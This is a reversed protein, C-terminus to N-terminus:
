MQVHQAGITVTEKEVFREVIMKIEDDTAKARYWMGREKYYMTALEGYQVIRIEIM